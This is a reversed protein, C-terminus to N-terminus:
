CIERTVNRIWKGSKFRICGFLLKIPEECVVILFVWYINLHFVFAALAAFPLSAFFIGAVDIIVSYNVDGGGRLVGVILAGNVTRIPFFVSRVLLMYVCIRRAGDTLELVSFILPQLLGFLLLIIVLGGAIGAIFSLIVFTKGLSYVEQRSDGAGISKGVFVAAGHALSLAALIVIRDINGALSFAAMINGSDAMYGYVVVYLSVGIAWLVENAVVPASYKFFDGAIIKGPRFLYKVYLPLVRNKRDGFKIYLLTIVVEVVRALVTGLAAGEIGMAPLGLKGFIFIYNLLANVIVSIFVVATGFRPSECSRRAGIYVSVFCSLVQSFAVIRGYRAAIEILEKNNTILGMVQHPFFFVVAGFALSVSLAVFWSIGVVRSITQKDGKGWYQSILVSGGSQVGFVFLLAIFFPTNAVSLAAMENQGIVGVMFTDLFGAASILLNQLIIPGVFKLLASYFENGRKLSQLMKM